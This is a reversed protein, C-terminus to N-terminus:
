SSRKGNFIFYGSPDSPYENLEILDRDSLGAFICYKSKIMIPIKGIFTKKHQIEIPNENDKTIIKTIDVYLQASYILNRLRAENSM